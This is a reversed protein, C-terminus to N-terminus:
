SLHGDSFLLKNQVVQPCLITLKQSSFAKEHDGILGIVALPSWGPGESLSDFYKKGLQGRLVRRIEM